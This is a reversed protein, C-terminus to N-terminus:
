ENMSNSGKSKAFSPIMLMGAMFLVFSGGRIVDYFEANRFFSINIIMSLAGVLTLLIGATQKSM